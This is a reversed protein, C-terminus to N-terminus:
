SRRVSGVEDGVFGVAVEDSVGVQVNLLSNQVVQRGCCGIRHEEALFLGVLGCVAVQCRNGWGLEGVSFEGPLKVGNVAGAVVGM